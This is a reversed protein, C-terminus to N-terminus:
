LITLIESFGTILFVDWVDENLNLVTLKGDSKKFKKHVALLVRLGASSIYELKDLDLELEKLDVGQVEIYKELLPSTSADLRGDLSLILKDDVENRSITM